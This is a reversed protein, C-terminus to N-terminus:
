EVKEKLECRKRGQCNKCDHYNMAIMYNGCWFEGDKLQM